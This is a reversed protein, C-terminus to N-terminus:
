FTKHQVKGENIKFSIQGSKPEGDKVQIFAMVVTLTENEKVQPKKTDLFTALTTVEEPTAPVEKITKWLAVVEAKAVADSEEKSKLLEKQEATLALDKYAVQSMWTGTENLTFLKM